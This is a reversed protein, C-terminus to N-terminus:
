NIIRFSKGSTTKEYENEGKKLKKIEARLRVIELAFESLKVILHNEIVFESKPMALIKSM